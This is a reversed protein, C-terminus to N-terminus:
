AATRSPGSLYQIPVIRPERLRDYDTNIQTTLNELKRPRLVEATNAFDSM